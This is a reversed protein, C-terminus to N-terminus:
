RLDVWLHLLKFEVSSRNLLQHLLSVDKEHVGGNLVIERLHQTEVENNVAQLLSLINGEQVYGIITGMPPESQAYIGEKFRQIGDTVYYKCYDHSKDRRKIRVLKCEVHYEYQEYAPTNAIFCFDPHGVPKPTDESAFVSTEPMIQWVLRMEKKAKYLHPRLKGSIVLEGDNIDVCHSAILKRLAAVICNQIRPEEDEAWLKLAAWTM